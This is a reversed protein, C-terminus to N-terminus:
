WFNILDIMKVCYWNENRKVEGQPTKRPKAYKLCLFALGALSLISMGTFLGIIGGAIDFILTRNLCPNGFCPKNLYQKNALGLQPLVLKVM